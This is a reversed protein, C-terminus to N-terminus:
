DFNSFDFDNLLQKLQKAEDFTLSIGKKYKAESKSYNRVDIYFTTQPQKKWRVVSVRKVNDKSKDGLDDIIMYTKRYDDEFIIEKYDNGVIDKLLLDDMDMIERRQISLRYDSVVIDVWSIWRKVSSLRRKATSISVFYTSCIKVIIRSEDRLIYFDYFIDKNLIQEVVIEIKEEISSRVVLEGLETLSKNKVLNLYELASTYYQVQRSTTLGLKSKIKIENANEYLLEILYIVKYIDNAQPFIPNRKSKM